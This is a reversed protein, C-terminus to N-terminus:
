RPRVIAITDPTDAGGQEGEVVVGYRQRLAAYFKENSELRYAEIWERRVAERVEPLAPVRGESRQDIRVLHIGYGSRIPGQWGGVPLENLKAAFGDGFERATQGSSVDKFSQELLSSDGLMSIDADAGAKTLQALLREADRALNEGHRDPNLYVQRFTLRCDSRFKQLNAALHSQLQEESPEVQAAVDESVFELKQRLRRRIILDDKDLGLAIAERSYIEERIYDGILGQLEQSSPPRHWTRTFGIGLQDIQGRSVVIKQPERPSEGRSVWKFAGFIAAGLLVFHLLPERLVRKM